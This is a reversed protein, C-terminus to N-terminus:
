SATGASRRRIGKDELARLRVAIRLTDLYTWGILALVAVAVGAYAWVIFIDQAHPDIM